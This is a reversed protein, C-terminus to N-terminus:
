LKNSSANFCGERFKKGISKYRPLAYDASSVNTVYLNHFACRLESGEVVGVLKFEHQESDGFAIITSGPKPSSIMSVIVVTGKKIDLSRVLKKFQAIQKLANNMNYDPDGKKPLAQVLAREWGNEIHATNKEGVFVFRLTKDVQPDLIELPNMGQRQSSSLRLEDVYLGLSYARAYPIWCADQMCRPACSIFSHTSPYSWAQTIVHVANPHNVNLTDDKNNVSKSFDVTHSSDCVTYNFYSDSYKLKRLTIACLGGTLIYFKTSAALSTM